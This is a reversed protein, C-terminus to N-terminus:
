PPTIWTFSNIKKVWSFALLWIKTIFKNHIDRLLVTIRAQLETNRIPKVVYDNAGLLLAYVIKEESDNTSVILIHPKLQLKEIVIQILEGVTGDPLLWDFILLDFPQSQIATAADNHRHHIAVFCCPANAFQCLKVLQRNNCQSCIGVGLFDFCRQINTHIIMNGLWNIAIM